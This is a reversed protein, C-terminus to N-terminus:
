RKKKTKKNINANFELLGVKWFGEFTLPLELHVSFKWARNDNFYNDSEDSQVYVFREM